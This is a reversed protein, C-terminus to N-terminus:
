YYAQDILDTEVNNCIKTIINKIDLHFLNCKIGSTYM